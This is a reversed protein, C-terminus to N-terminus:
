CCVHQQIPPLCALCAPSGEKKKRGREFEVPPRQKGGPAPVLGVAPPPDIIVNIAPVSRVACLMAGPVSAGAPMARRRHCEPPAMWAM